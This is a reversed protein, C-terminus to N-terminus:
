NKQCAWHDPEAGNLLEMGEISLVTRGTLKAIIKAQSLSSECFTFCYKRDMVVNAKFQAIDQPTRPGEPMMLLEGYKVGHSELWAKTRERYKERRGTAITAVTWRPIYLPRAHDIHEQYEPGEHDTGTWDECLVGDFDVAWHQVQGDRLLAWETTHSANDLRRGKFDLRGAAQDGYYLAGFKVGSLQPKLSEITRGTWAIDDVVLVEGETPPIRRRHHKEWPREGDLLASLEVGHVGLQEALMNGIITGSRPIGCVAAIKPLRLSWERVDRAAQAYSIFAMKRSLPDKPEQPKALANYNTCYRGFHVKPKRDLLSKLFLWDSWYIDHPFRSDQIFDAKVVFQGCDVKAYRLNRECAERVPRGNQYQGFIYLDFDGASVLRDNLQPHILNDDDLFYVLGEKCYPLAANKQAGGSCDSVDVNGFVTAAALSGPPFVNDKTADAMVIWRVDFSPLLKLSEALATLNEPRSCATVVNLIM